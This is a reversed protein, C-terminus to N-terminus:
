PGACAGEELLVKRVRRVHKEPAAYSECAHSTKASDEQGPGEGAPPGQPATDEPRHPNEGRGEGGRPLKQKLSHLADGPGGNNIKIGM